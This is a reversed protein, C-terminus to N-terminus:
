LNNAVMFDSAQRSSGVSFVINNVTKKTESKNPSAQSSSHDSYDGRGARDDRGRSYSRGQDRGRGSM